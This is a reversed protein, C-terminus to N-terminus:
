CAAMMAFRRSANSITLVHLQIDNQKRLLALSSLCDAPLVPDGIIDQPSDVQARSGYQETVILDADPPGLCCNRIALRAMFPDERYNPFDWGFWVEALHNVIGATPDLIMFFLIGAVAPSIAYPWVLMTRYAGGGRIGRFALVAVALGATM